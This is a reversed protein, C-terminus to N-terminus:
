QKTTAPIGGPGVCQYSAGHNCFSNAESEERTIKRVSTGTVHHEDTDQLLTILYQVPEHSGLWNSWGESVPTENGAARVPYREIGLLNIHYLFTIKLM